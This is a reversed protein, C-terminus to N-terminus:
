PDLPELADASSTLRHRSVSEFLSPFGCEEYRRPVPFYGDCLKTANFPCAVHPCARLPERVGLEVDLMLKYQIASLIHTQSEKEETPPALAAVIEPNMSIAQRPPHSFEFVIAPPLIRKAEVSTSGSPSIYQWPKRLVARAVGDDLNWRAIPSIPLFATRGVTARHQEETIRGRDDDITLQLWSTSHESGPGFERDVILGFAFELVDESQETLPTSDLGERVALGLLLGLVELPRTTRLGLRAAMPILAYATDDCVHRALLSFVATYNSRRSIWRRYDSGSGWGGVEVRYQVVSAEEEVLDNESVTGRQIRGPEAPSVRVSELALDIRVPDREVLLSDRIHKDLSLTLPLEYRGPNESIYSWKRGLLRSARAARLYLLPHNAVQLVHAWEHVFTGRMNRLTWDTLDATFGSADRSGIPYGSLLWLMEPDNQPHVAITVAGSVPDAYTRRHPM